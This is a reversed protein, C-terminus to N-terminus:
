EEIKIVIKGRFNGSEALQHAESVKELPFVNEVVPVLDGTMAFGTLITLDVGSPKVWITRAKKLFPFINLIRRFLLGPSPITSIYMGGSNLYQRSEAFTMKAAADFFIDFTDGSRKLDESRYDYVKKAGLKRCLEANKKSCVGTVDAGMAGAIQVAFIGVGGTAGNVLVRAGERINGIYNLSQLATLAALPVSAAEEFTFTEPMLSVCAPDVILYDAYAGGKVASIFGYVRDGAVYGEVNEGTKEIVGSFDAGAYKPFKKGTIFKLDGRRIKYDVPNVSSASVKILLKDVPLEPIDREAIELVGADGYKNFIVSRM